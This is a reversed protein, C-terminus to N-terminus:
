PGSSREAGGGPSFSLIASGEGAEKWADNSALADGTCHLVTAVEQGNDLMAHVLLPHTHGRLTDLWAQSWLPLVSLIPDTRLCDGTANSANGSRRTTSAM